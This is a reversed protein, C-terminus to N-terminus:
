GSGEALAWARLWTVLQEYGERTAAIKTAALPVPQRSPVRLACVVHTRKAVDIGVVLQVDTANTQEGVAM